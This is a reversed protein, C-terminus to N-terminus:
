SISQRKLIFLCYFLFLLYYGGEGLIYINLDRLTASAPPYGSEGVCLRSAPSDGRRRRGRSERVPQNNVRLSARPPRRLSLGQQTGVGMGRDSAAAGATGTRACLCACVSAPERARAWSSTSAGRPGRGRRRGAPFPVAANLHSTLQYGLM